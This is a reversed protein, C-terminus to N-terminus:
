LSPNPKLTGIIACTNDLKFWCEHPSEFFLIGSNYVYKMDCLIIIRCLQALFQFIKLTLFGFFPSFIFGTDSVTIGVCGLVPKTKQM